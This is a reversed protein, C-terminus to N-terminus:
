LIGLLIADWNGVATVWEIMYKRCPSRGEREEGSGM